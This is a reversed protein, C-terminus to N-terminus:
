LEYTVRFAARAGHPVYDIRELGIGEMAEIHQAVSDTVLIEWARATDEGLKAAANVEAGFVDEGGISLVQGSGIGLCLLVREEEVRDENYRQAARQMDIACQVAERPGPFTVLMSDGETKVLIGDWRDICPAFIRRSELIIQLFHIIGFEAARGSFGALDTFMVTWETGFLKWIRRDIRAKDAGPQLREDILKALRDMHGSGPGVPANTLSM